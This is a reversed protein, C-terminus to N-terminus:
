DIQMHVDLANSLAGRTGLVVLQTYSHYGNLLPDTPLPIRLNFSGSGTSLAFSLEPLVGLECGNGLLASVDLPLLGTASAQTGFLLAALRNPELNTASLSFNPSPILPRQTAALVPLSAPGACGTDFSTSSATEGERCALIDSLSLARAYIRFDDLRYHASAPISGTTSFAGVALHEAPQYVYTGPAFSTPNSQAIGNEYLTCLGVANDIVLAYHNWIGRRLHGQFDATGASALVSGTGGSFGIGSTAVGCRFSGDGFFFGTPSAGIAAPDRMAWWLITLSGGAPVQLLGGTDIWNRGPSGSPTQALCGFGPENTDFAFREPGPDGHWGTNSVIGFRPFASLTAINAVQTGRLENLPYGLLDPPRNVGRALARVYATRTISDSFCSNGANLTVTYIGPTTYTFLPNRLTSDNSGNGDLDWRWTSPSGTSLDQFSVTLPVQGVTTSSSFEAQVQLQPDVVVFRQKTRTAPAHQTDTVTLRVDYSGCRTYSYSPNQANSDVIGNGDFDWAWTAIGAPDDTFSRDSFGVSLPAAGRTPNARFDAYLITGQLYCLAGNWVRSGISSGTFYGAQATGLALALSPDSYSQNSFNGNTYASGAGRHVICLGYSGPRLVFSTELPIVTPQDQGASTIDGRDDGVHTWLAQNTTKGVYTTPTTWIEVGCPAGAAGAFNMEVQTVIVTNTVTVDLFLSSDPGLGNDSAFVTRLCTQAEAPESPFGLLAAGVLAHLSRRM